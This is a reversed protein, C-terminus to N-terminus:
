GHCAEQEATAGQDGVLELLLAVDQWYALPNDHMPFRQRLERDMAEISARGGGPEFNLMVDGGRENDRVCARGQVSVQLEFRPVVRLVSKGDTGYELLARVRGFGDNIAYWSGDACQGSLAWGAPLAVLMRGYLVTYVRMGWGRALEAMGVPGAVTAPLAVVLPLADFVPNEQM